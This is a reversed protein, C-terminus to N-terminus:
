KKLLNAFFDSPAKESKSATSAKTSKKKKMTERKKDVPAKTEDPASSAPEKTTDITIGVSSALKELWEEDGGKSETQEAANNSKKSAPPLAKELNDKSADWLGECSANRQMAGCILEADHSGPPYISPEAAAATETISEQNESSGNAAPEKLMADDVPSLGMAVRRIVSALEEITM